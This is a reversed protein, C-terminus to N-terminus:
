GPMPRYRLMVRSGDALGNRFRSEYVLWSVPYKKGYGKLIKEKTDPSITGSASAEMQPLTKYKGNSNRWNGLDGVWIRARSLGKTVAKARWTSAETVVYLDKGDPVFWLEAQCSSEQGDSRIPTIYILDSEDISQQLTPQAAAISGRPLLGAVLASCGAVMLNRRNIMLNRRNIMM